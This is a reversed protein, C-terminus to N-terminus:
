ASRVTDIGGSARVTEDVIDYSGVIYTDNGALGFLRNLSPDAIADLINDGHNGIAQPSPGYSVGVITINEINKYDLLVGGPLAPKRQNLPQLQSDTHIDKTVTM